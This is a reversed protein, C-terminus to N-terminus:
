PVPYYYDDNIACLMDPTITGNAVGQKYEERTGEWDIMSRSVADYIWDFISRDSEGDEGDGGSTGGSSPVREPETIGLINYINRIHQMVDYDNLIDNEFKGNTVNIAM